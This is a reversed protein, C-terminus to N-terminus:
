KKKLVVRLHNGFGLADIVDQIVGHNKKIINALDLKKSIDREYAYIDGLDLGFTKLYIVKLVNPIFNFSKPCLYTMHYPPTVLNQNEKMYTFGLSDKNPSYILIIGGKKLKESIKKLYKMPKNVHEIVDFLTIVDYDDKKLSDIKKYIDIKLKKSVFHLLSINPEVGAVSFYKSALELFWGNGCGIDVLKGKKKFKLILNLREYGFRKIRYRRTVEYSSQHYNFQQKNNYVDNFNKPMKSSFASTCRSCLKIDIKFKTLYPTSKKSGCVLCSLVDKWGSGSDVRQITKRLNVNISKHFGIPRLIKLNNKM